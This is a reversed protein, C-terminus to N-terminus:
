FYSDHHFSYANIQHYRQTNKKHCKKKEKSEEKEEEWEKRKGKGEIEGEGEEKRLSERLERGGM